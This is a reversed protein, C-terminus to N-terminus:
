CRGCILGVINERQTTSRLRVQRTDCGSWRNIPALYGRKAKEKDGRSRSENSLSEREKAKMMKTITLEPNRPLVHDADDDAVAYAAVM